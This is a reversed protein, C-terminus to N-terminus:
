VMPLLLFFFVLRVNLHINNVSQYHCPLINVASPVFSCQQRCVCVCMYSHDLVCCSLVCCSNHVFFLHRKNPDTCYLCEVYSLEVPISCKMLEQLASFNKFQFEQDFSFIRSGSQHFSFRYIFITIRFQGKNRIILEILTTLKHKDTNILTINVKVYVIIIFLFCFM